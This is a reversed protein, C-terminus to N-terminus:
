IRLGRGRELRYFNKIPQKESFSVIGANNDCALRKGIIASPCNIKPLLFGLTQLNLL